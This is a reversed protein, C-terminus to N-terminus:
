FLTKLKETRIDILVRTVQSSTIFKSQDFAKSSVEEDGSKRREIYKSNLKIRM